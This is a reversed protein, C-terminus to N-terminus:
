VQGRRRKMEALIEAMQCALLKQMAPFVYREEHHLHMDMLAKLRGSMEALQPALAALKSPDELLGSWIPILQQLLTNIGVHHSVMTDSAEALEAPAVSQMRPDISQNEDAEHLPLAVTFYRVIAQVADKVQEPPPDPTEALAVAVGCFHRIREHCSFLMSLPTENQETPSKDRTPSSHIQNLM